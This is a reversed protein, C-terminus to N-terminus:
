GPEAPAWGHLRLAIVPGYFVHRSAFALRKTARARIVPISEPKSSCESESLANSLNRLRESPLAGRPCTM